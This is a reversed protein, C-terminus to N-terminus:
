GPGEALGETEEGEAGEANAEEGLWGKQGKMKRERVRRGRM